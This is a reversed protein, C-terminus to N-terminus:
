ANAASSEDEKVIKYKRIERVRFPFSLLKTKAIIGSLIMVTVAFLVTADTKLQSLFLQVIVLADSFITHTEQVADVAIVTEERKFYQSLAIHTTLILLWSCVILLPGVLFLLRILRREEKRAVEDMVDSCCSGYKEKAM